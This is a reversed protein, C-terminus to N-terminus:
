VSKVSSSSNKNATELSTAEHIPEGIVLGIASAITKKICDIDKNYTDAIVGFAFAFMIARGYPISVWRHQKSYYKEFSELLRPFVTMAFEGWRSPDEFFVSSASLGSGFFCWNPSFHKLKSPMYCLCLEGICAFGAIFLLSRLINKILKKLNKVTYKDKRKKFVLFPVLHVLAYMKVSRLTVDATKRWAELLHSHPHRTDCQVSVREIAQALMEMKEEAPLPRQPHWMSSPTLLRLLSEFPVKNPFLGAM